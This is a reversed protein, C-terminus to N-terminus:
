YKQSHIPDVVDNASNMTTPPALSSKQINKKNQSEPQHLQRYLM